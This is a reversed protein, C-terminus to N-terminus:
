FHYSEIVHGLARLVYVVDRKEKSGRKLVFM